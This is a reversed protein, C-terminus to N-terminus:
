RKRREIRVANRMSSTKDEYAIIPVEDWKSVTTGDDLGMTKRYQVVEMSGHNM